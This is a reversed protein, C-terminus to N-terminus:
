LGVLARKRHARVRGKGKQKKPNKDRPKGRRGLM